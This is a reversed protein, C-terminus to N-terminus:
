PKAGIVFTNQKEGFIAKISYIFWDGWKITGNYQLILAGKCRNIGPLFNM